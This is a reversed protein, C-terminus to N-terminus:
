VHREVKVRTSAGLAPRTPKPSQALAEITKVIPM